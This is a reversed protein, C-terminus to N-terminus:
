WEVIVIGAAGAAGSGASSYAGGGGSGPSLGAVGAGSGARGGGGFASAGGSGTGNAASAASGDNGNGGSINVAGGSGIGPVGGGVGNVGGSVFTAGGGTASALAGISSTAGATSNAGSAAGAGGIGVTITIVAGPTVTFIGETYGGAGGGGGCSTTGNGGSGGAGGGVVRGKIKTVGAPVTFTGSASFVQIRSFGPTQSPLKFQIFPAGPLVTGVLNATTISTQGYNVTVVYIGTYGGDVAPTTQTGTAASAGAKLQLAVRQARVTNQTVGTNAPGSYPVAPNAPNYYPLVVPTGDTESLTAEILYNISQGPTVPATLTFPTVGVANVGFKVLPNTDLLLSGFATADITSLSFIAGQGIQIVMSAVTTQTIALGDVVTGTGLTAQALYGLAIMANRQASGGDTDLPIAGPSLILRDM